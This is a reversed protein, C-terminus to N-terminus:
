REVEGGSTREGDGRMQPSSWSLEAEYKAPGPGRSAAADETFLIENRQQVESLSSLPKRNQRPSPM